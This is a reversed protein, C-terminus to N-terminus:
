EKQDLWFSFISIDVNINNGKKWLKKGQTFLMINQCLYFKNYITTSLFSMSM